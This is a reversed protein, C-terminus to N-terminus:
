RIQFNVPHTITKGFSKTRSMGKPLPIHGREMGPHLGGHLTMGQREFLSQLLVFCLSKLANDFVTKFTKLSEMFNWISYLIGFVPSQLALCHMCVISTHTTHTWTNKLVHHTLNLKYTHWCLPAHHCISDALASHTPASVSIEAPTIRRSTPRQKVTAARYDAESPQSRLMSEQSALM